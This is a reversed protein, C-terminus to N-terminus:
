PTYMKYYNLTFLILEIFITNIILLLLTMTILENGTVPKTADEHDVPQSNLCM